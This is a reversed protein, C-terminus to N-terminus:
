EVVLKSPELGPPTDRSVDCHLELPGVRQSFHNYAAALFTGILFAGAGSAAAFAVPPVLFSLLEPVAVHQAGSVTLMLETFAALGGKVFGLLSGTAAFWLGCNLPPIRIIRISQKM